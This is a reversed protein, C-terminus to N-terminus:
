GGICRQIRRSCLKLDLGSDVWVLWSELRVALSETFRNRRVRVTGQNYALELKGHGCCLFRQSVGSSRSVMNSADSVFRELSGLSSEEGGACGLPCDIEWVGIETRPTVTPARGPAPSLPGARVLESRGERQYFTAWM